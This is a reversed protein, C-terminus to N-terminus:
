AVQGLQRVMRRRAIACADTFYLAIDSLEFGAIKMDEESVSGNHAVTDILYAVMQDKISWDPRPMTINQPDNALLKDCCQKDCCLRVFVSDPASPAYYGEDRSVYKGCFNCQCPKNM